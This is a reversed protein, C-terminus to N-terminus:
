FLKQDLSVMECLSKVEAETLPKCDYLREIFKDLDHINDTSSAGIDSMQFCSIM